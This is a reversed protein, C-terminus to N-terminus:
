RKLAVMIYIAVVILYSKKSVKIQLKKAIVEGVKTSLDVKSTSDSAIDKDQSSAQVLTEGEDDIIQAYIHKKFPICKFTTKLQVQYNLVCVLM